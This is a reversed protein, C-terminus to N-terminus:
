LEGRRWAYYKQIFQWQTLGFAKALREGLKRATEYSCCSGFLAKLSKNVDGKNQGLLAAVKKDDDTSWVLSSDPESNRKSDEMMTGRWIIRLM